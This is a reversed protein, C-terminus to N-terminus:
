LRGEQFMKIAEIYGEGELKQVKAKLSEATEEPEVACKKQLIIPGKDVDETVFHITMGSEKEGADLVAQHVDKDMGGAFKPLLSPHVNM